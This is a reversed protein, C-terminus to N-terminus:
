PSSDAKFTTIGALHSRQSREKWLRGAVPANTPTDVIWVPVSEPLAALREGFTRDVVVYVKYPESM